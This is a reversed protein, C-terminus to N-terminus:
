KRPFNLKPCVGDNIDMNKMLPVARPRHLNKSCDSYAYKSDGYHHFGTCSECSKCVGLSAEIEEDCLCFGDTNRPDMHYRCTTEGDKCTICAINDNGFLFLARLRRQAYRIMEYTPDNEDPDSDDSIHCFAMSLLQENNLRMVDIQDAMSQGERICDYCIGNENKHFRHEALECGCATCITYEYIKDNHWVIDGCVECAVNYSNRTADEAYRDIGVIDWPRDFNFHRYKGTDPEYHDIERGTFPNIHDGYGFTDPNQVICKRCVVKDGPEDSTESLMYAEDRM